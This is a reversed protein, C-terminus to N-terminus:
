WYPIKLELPNLAQIMDTGSIARSFVRRTAIHFIRNESRSSRIRPVDNPVALRDIEPARTLRAHIHRMFMSYFDIAFPNRFTFCYFRLLPDAYDDFCNLLSLKHDIMSHYVRHYRILELMLWVDLLRTFDTTTPSRSRSWSTLFIGSESEARWSQYSCMNRNLSSISLWMVLMTIIVGDDLMKTGLFKAPTILSDTDTCVRNTAVVSCRFISVGLRSQTSKLKELSSVEGM